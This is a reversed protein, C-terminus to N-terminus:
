SIILGLQLPTKPVMKGALSRRYHFAHLKGKVILHHQYHLFLLYM